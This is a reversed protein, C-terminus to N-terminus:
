INKETFYSRFTPQICTELIAPLFSLTKGSATPTALLM